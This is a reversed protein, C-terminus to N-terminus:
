RLGVGDGGDVEGEVGAGGDVAGRRGLAVGAAPGGFGGDDARARRRVLERALGDGELVVDGEGADGAGVAGAGEGPRGADVGDEDRADEVGAAGDRALGGALVVAEAGDAVGGDRAGHVVGVGVAVAAAAGARAGRAEDGRALAPRADAAVLAARDAERGRVAADHAQLRRPAAHRVRADLEPRV